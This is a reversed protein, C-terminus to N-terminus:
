KPEIRSINKGDISIKWINVQNWPTDSVMKMDQRDAYFNPEGPNTTLSYYSANKCQTRLKKTIGTTINSSFIGYEQAFWIINQTDAWAFGSSRDIGIIDKPTVILRKSGDAINYQVIANNDPFRAAIINDDTPHWAYKGYPFTDLIKGNESVLRAGGGGAYPTVLFKDGKPSWLPYFYSPGLLKQLSDGNSKIKFIEGYANGFLIWDKVSWSPRYVISKGDVLPRAEGTQLDQIRLLEQNTTYDVLMYVMKNKDFPCICPWKAHKYNIEIDECDDSPVPEAQKEKKCFVLLFSIIIFLYLARM